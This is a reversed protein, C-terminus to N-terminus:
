PAGLEEVVVDVFPGTALTGTGVTAVIVIELLDDAALTVQGTDLTGDEAIRATNDSDLTIVGTLVSTGNKKVDVTVTSDGICAVISGAKVAKITGAAYSCHIPITVSAASGNAGYTMSHLHRVKAVGIDANANVAADLITGAPISLTQMSLTGIYRYDGQIISTGAM